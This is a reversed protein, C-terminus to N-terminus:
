RAPFPTPPPPTAKPSTSSACSAHPGSSSSGSSFPRASKRSTNWRRHCSPSIRRVLGPHGRISM